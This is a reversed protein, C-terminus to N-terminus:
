CITMALETAAQYKELHIKSRGMVVIAKFLLKLVKKRGKRTSIPRLQSADNHFRNEPQYFIM